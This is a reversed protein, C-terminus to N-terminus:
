RRASATKKLNETLIELEKRLRKMQQIPWTMNTNHSTLASHLSQKAIHSV